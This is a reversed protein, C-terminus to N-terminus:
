ACTFTRAAQEATRHHERYLDRVREITAALPFIETTVLQDDDDAGVPHWYAGDATITVEPVLTEVTLEIGSEAVGRHALPRVIQHERAIGLSDLFDRLEHEEQLDNTTLTAAVRVTFGEDLAIRVGAVAKAWSGVGRHMDHRDPTASDISIQVRLRDRPMARLMELRHGRFLMGNTLLTTPLASTCAVVIEDLDPLMFPEGGTLLFETVGAAPAQMAIARIRDLGLARRPTRPSSRVCCYDCALNCDFNTYLWLRAGPVRDAPLRAVPDPARGRLVTATRDDAAVLTNGTRECWGVVLEHDEASDLPVTVLEGEAAWGVREVLELIVM